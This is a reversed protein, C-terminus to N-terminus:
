SVCISTIWQTFDEKHEQFKINDGMISILEQKLADLDVSRVASKEVENSIYKYFQMEEMVSPPEEFFNTHTNGFQALM